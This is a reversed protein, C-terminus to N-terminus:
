IRFRDFDRQSNLLKKVDKFYTTANNIADQYQRDSSSLLAHAISNRINNVKDFIKALDTTSNARLQTKVQERNRKPISDLNNLECLSTLIAEALTIYGAAYRNNDFYWKALKLQFASEKEGTQRFKEVFEELIRLIYKFPKNPAFPNNTQRAQLSSHLRTSKKKVERLYNINITDSVEKIQKAIAEEGQKELLDSILNGDGFNKLIYAGKVWETLDLLPKLDVVPTYKLDYRAEFMGYYVSKIKINRDTQLENIFTMVLFMFMPISRFSHTIDIYIEYTENKNKLTENVATIIKDFNESLETEDLGYKTLVCRSNKGLVKDIPSLDLSNLPSDYQAADIDDILKDYYKQNLKISNKERFFDYVAEWMSKVTGIFIIDDIEFTDYLVAAIFSSEYDEGKIRYKATPYERDAKKEKSPGVGLASILIKRAM